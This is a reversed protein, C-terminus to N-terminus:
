GLKGKAASVLDECCGSVYFRLDDFSRGECVIEAVRGHEDCRVSCVLKEISLRAWMLADQELEAIIDEHLTERNVANPM